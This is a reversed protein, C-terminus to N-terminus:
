MQRMSVLLKVPKPGIWQPHLPELSSGKTQAPPSGGTLTDWCSPEPDTELPEGRGCPKTPAATTGYSCCHCATSEFLAPIQPCLDRRASLCRITGPCSAEDSCVSSAQKLCVLSKFPRLNNSFYKNKDRFYWGHHWRTTTQMHPVRQVATCM